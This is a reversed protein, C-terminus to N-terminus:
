CDTAVYECSEPPKRPDSVAYPDWVGFEFNNRHVSSADCSESHQAVGGVCAPVPVFFGSVRTTVPLNVRTIGNPLPVVRIARFELGPYPLTLSDPMLAVPEFPTLENVHYEGASDTEVINSGISIAVGPIPQDSADMVGNRNYDLFVTGAIESRGRLQTSSFTAARLGCEARIAISGGLAHTTAMGSGSTVSRADYRAARTFMSLSATFQPAHMGKRWEAGLELQGFRATPVVLTVFSAGAIDDGVSGRIRSGLPLIFPVSSEVYAGYGYEASSNGARRSMSAFPRIYAGGLVFSSAIRFRQEDTLTSGALDLSATISAASYPRWGASVNASSWTPLAHPSDSQMTRGRYTAALDFTARPAYHLGVFPGERSLRATANVDDRVRTAILASPELDNGRSSLRDIVGAGLTLYSSPAYRADLKAAYDCLMSACRGISFDYGAARSPMMNDDISVYRSVAHHEGNPGYETIAVRNIGRAAPVNITYGGASDTVGSYVLIDDRYAEIEWGTGPSGALTLPAISDGRFPPTSSIYLGIGAIGDRALPVTGLRVDRFAFQSPWSREWAFTARNIQAGARIWDLDLGGGLINSGVGLRITSESAGSGRFAGVDYDVLLERPLVPENRSTKIPTTTIMAAAAFQARHQKRAARQSVPLSGDDAVFATLDDWDVTIAAHLLVSLTDTPLYEPSDPAAPLEALALLQAVPLLATNGNRMAQLTASAVTGITVDLIVPEAHTSDSTTFRWAPPTAILIALLALPLM